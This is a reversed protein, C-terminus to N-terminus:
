ERRAGLVRCRAGLVEWWACLVRYGAGGVYCGAGLVWCRAHPMGFNDEDAMRAGAAVDNSDSCITSKSDRDRSASRLPLRTGKGLLLPGPHLFLSAFQSEVTRSGTLGDIGLYLGCQARPGCELQRRPQEFQCGLVPQTYGPHRYAILPPAPSRARRVTVDTQVPAENLHRRLDSVIHHDVLEHVQLAHVM